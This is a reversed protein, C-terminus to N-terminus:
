MARKIAYITLSDAIDEALNAVGDIRDIFYRMHVKHALDLDMQFVLQKLKTSQIDAESEYFIVKHCHDRVSRIDRFFARAALLLHETCVVVIRQLDKLDSHLLEPFEPTETAMAFALSQQVGILDDINDLMSLVDSRFDPILTKEYLYTTIGRRLSDAQNEIKNLKELNQEFEESPKGERLYVDLLRAFIDSADSVHDFFDDIAHAIKRSNGLLSAKDRPKIM